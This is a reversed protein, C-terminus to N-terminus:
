TVAPVAFKASILLSFRSGTYLHNEFKKKITEGFAWSQDDQVNVSHLKDQSFNHFVANQGLDTHYICCWSM